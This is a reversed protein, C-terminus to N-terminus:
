TPGGATGSGAQPLEIDVREGDIRKPLEPDGGFRRTHSHEVAHGPPPVGHGVAEGAQLGIGYTNAGIRADPDTGPFTNCVEIALDPRDGVGNLVVRDEAVVHMGDREVCGSVDPHPVDGIADAAVELGLM